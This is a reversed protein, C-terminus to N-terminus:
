DNMPTTSQRRMPRLSLPAGHGDLWLLMELHGHTM